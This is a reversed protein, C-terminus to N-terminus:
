SLDALELTADALILRVVPCEFGSPLLTITDIYM